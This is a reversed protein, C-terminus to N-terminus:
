YVMMNVLVHAEFRNLESVERPKPERVHSMIIAREEENFPEYTYSFKKVTGDPLIKEIITTEM